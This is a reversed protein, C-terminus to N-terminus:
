KKAYNYEKILHCLRNTYLDDISVIQLKSTYAFPLHTYASFLAAQNTTLKTTEIQIRKNTAEALAKSIMESCYMRDNSRLNFSFDFGIGQRYWKLICEKLKKIENNNMDYRFIAYAANQRPDCFRSLSDKRLKNGPNEEGNIIHFVYPYGNEYLVIGSHSYSKDHSNFDKIFRSAPSRNLRVILDGEKLLSQGEKIMAYPRICNNGSVITTKQQTVNGVSEYLFYFILSITALQKM